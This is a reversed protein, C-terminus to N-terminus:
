FTCDHNFRSFTFILVQSLELVLHLIHALVELVHLISSDLGFALKLLAELVSVRLSYM